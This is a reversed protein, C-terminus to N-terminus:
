RILVDRHPRHNLSHYGLDRFQLWANRDGHFAFEAVNGSILAQQPLCNQIQHPVGGFGRAAEIRFDLEKLVGRRVEEVVAPLDYPRLTESRHNVQAALWGALDLDIAIKQAIGPRQIKVAVKTGDAKVKATYVQALSASAAPTEDFDEFVRGHQKGLSADLVEAMEAFPLAHVKDQLKRLELILKEPVVDPRMSLLQGFKIFTPGLEELTVRVREYTSLPHAEKPVMHRWMSAPAGAQHLLDAFGNRALITFIETARAGHALFDFRKV